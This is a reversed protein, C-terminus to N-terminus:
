AQGGAITGFIMAIIVCILFAVFARKYTVIHAETAPGLAQRIEDFRWWGVQGYTSFRTGKPAMMVIQIASLTAIGWAFFGLGALVSFIIVAM